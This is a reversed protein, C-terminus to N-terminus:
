VGAVVKADARVVLVDEEAAGVDMLVDLAAVLAVLVVLVVVQVDLVVVQVIEPVVQVVARVVELVLELVPEAALEVVLELVDLVTQRADEQVYVLVLLKAVMIQLPIDKKHFTLLLQILIILLLQM